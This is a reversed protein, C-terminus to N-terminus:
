EETGHPGVYFKGFFYDEPKKGKEILKLRKKNRKRKQKTKIQKRTKLGM